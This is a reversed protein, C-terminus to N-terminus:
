AEEGPAVIQGVMETVDLEGCGDCVLLVTTVGVRVKHLQEVFNPSPPWTVAENFKGAVPAAYTRSHERWVHVHKKCFMEVVEEAM